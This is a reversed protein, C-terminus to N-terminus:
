FSSVKTVLISIYIFRVHVNSEALYV